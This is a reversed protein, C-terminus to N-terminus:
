GILVTAGPRTEARRRVTIAPQRREEVLLALRDTEPSRIGAKRMALALLPAVDLAEAAQGLEAEVAEVTAGLALLEGARRNRSGDALVTALLDGVGAPGAFSRPNAGLRLALAHCEAFVGGAAAGAANPGELLNVAAALAAVNKACAALQVGVLDDSAECRTGAGELLRVLRARMVADASAVVLSASGDTAERAHAPGALFAPSTAPLRSTVLDTPLDGGPAVLGKTAVLVGVGSGLRGELAKVAEPLSRSPVALCVVDVGTLDLEDVATPEVLDPLAVGPLYRGNEREARLVAAQEASRCALRVSAGGKALLVALATGWSGAGVVVANRIPPVGGLWEWGLEVSSWVRATIERAAGASAHGDLPRPFTVPRGFRVRVKRPRVRWGARIDETGVVAAPVITAGTELALRGVGRRPRGLPGPRVRTGEPFIGVVGGRELIARATAIAEEDSEGRRVPFAGLALLLRAKWRKDFLEVKAMFHLPRRICLGIMFPDSFSRHNAAILVPGEKPVAEAGIGERRFLLAALPHLVIRAIWYLIPSTGRERAIQHARAPDM